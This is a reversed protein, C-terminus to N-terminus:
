RFVWTTTLPTRGPPLTVLRWTGNKALSTLEDTIAHQWLEADPRAMARAYGSFSDDLEWQRTAKARM